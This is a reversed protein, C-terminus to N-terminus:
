ISSTPTSHTWWGRVTPVSPEKGYRDKYAEIMTPILILDLEAYTVQALTLGMEVLLRDFRRIIPVWKKLSREALHRVRTAYAKYGDADPTYEPRSKM